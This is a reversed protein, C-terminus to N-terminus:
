DNEYLITMAGTVNGVNPYACDYTFGTIILDLDADLQIQKTPDDFYNKESELIM